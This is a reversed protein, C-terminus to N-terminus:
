SRAAYGIHPLDKLSCKHNKFYAIVDDWARQDFVSLGDRRTVHYFHGQLEEPLAFDVGGFCNCHIGGNCYARMFIMMYWWFSVGGLSKNTDFYKLLVSQVDYPSRMDKVPFKKLLASYKKNLESLEHKVVSLEREAESLKREVEALKRKTELHVVQEAYLADQAEDKEDEAIRREEEIDAWVRMAAIPDISM